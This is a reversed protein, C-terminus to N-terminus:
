YKKPIVIAEAIPQPCFQQVLDAYIREQSVIPHASGKEIIERFNEFRNQRYIKIVGDCQVLQVPNPIPTAKGGIKVIEFEFSLFVAVALAACLYITRVM